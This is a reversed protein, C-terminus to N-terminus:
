HGRQTLDRQQKLYRLFDEQQQTTLELEHTKPDRAKEREDKFIHATVKRLMEGVWSM